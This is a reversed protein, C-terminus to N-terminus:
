KRVLCKPINWIQKYLNLDIKTGECTLYNGLSDRKMFYAKGESIQNICKTRIETVSTGKKLSKALEIGLANNLLDMECSLSDPKEGDENKSKLFLQYNDKEHAIGLKKVKHGAVKSSFVAMYFLHRFADLKGGNEFKDLSNADKVANYIIDCRSKEKKLKIAAFPHSYAWRKQYKGYSKLSSCSTSLIVFLFAVSFVNSNGIFNAVFYNGRNNVNFLKKM